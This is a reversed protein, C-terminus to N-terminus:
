HLLGMLYKKDERTGKVIMNGVIIVNGNELLMTKVKFYWEVM